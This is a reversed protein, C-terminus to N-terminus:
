SLASTSKKSALLNHYAWNFFFCMATRLGFSYTSFRQGETANRVGIDRKSECRESERACVCVCVCVCVCGLRRKREIERHGRERRNHSDHHTLSHWDLQLCKQAGFLRRWFTWVKWRELWYNSWSFRLPFNFSVIEEIEIFIQTTSLLMLSLSISILRM